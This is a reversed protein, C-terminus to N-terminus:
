VDISEADADKTSFPLKLSIYLQEEYEEWLVSAKNLILSCSQIINRVVHVCKESAANCSRVPKSGMGSSAPDQSPQLELNINEDTIM